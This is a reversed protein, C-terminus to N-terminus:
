PMNSQRYLLTVYVNGILGHYYYYYYLSDRLLPPEMYGNGIAAGQQSFVIGSLHQLIKTGNIQFRKM